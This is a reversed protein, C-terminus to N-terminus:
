LTYAEREAVYDGFVALGYALDGEASFLGKLTAYRENSMIKEGMLGLMSQQAYRRCIRLISLRFVRMRMSLLLFARSYWGAVLRVFCSRTERRENIKLWDEASSRPPFGAVGYRNRWDNQSAAQSQPPVTAIHPGVQGNGIREWSKRDRSRPKKRTEGLGAARM